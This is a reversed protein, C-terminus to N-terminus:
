DKKEQTVGGLEMSIKEDVIRRLNERVEKAREGHAMIHCHLCLCALNKLDNTGGHSRFIIHHTETALAGCLVCLGKDRNYALKRKKAYDKNKQRQKDSVKKM